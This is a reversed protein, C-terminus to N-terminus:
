RVLQIATLFGAGGGVSPAGTVFAGPYSMLYGIVDNGSMRDAFFGLINVVHVCRGGGPCVSWDGSARRHQFDDLDFVAIPVIRPSFPACGPACSNAVTTGDWTANPDTARLDAFGQSTPGVMAGTETPLYDGIAVPHGLCTAINARYNSAGNEYGGAGDPLQVPLTWGPTIPDTNSNPNNGAKLTEEVGRDDPFPAGLHFGTGYGSPSPPTYTDHPSAEVVISGQKSWRDYHGDPDPWTGAPQGLPQWKDAVSFPRMCNTANATAVRATATAWVGQSSINLVKGFIMPLATSGFQGDRYVDARVCRGAVGAPCVFSVQVGPTAQWVLNAQAAKQASQFTKGNAAPPDTTEDYARAIAGALAGADAADQAQGRSLWLVGYDLVFTLLATLMLISLATQV